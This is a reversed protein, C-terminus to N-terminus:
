QFGARRLAEIYLDLDAPDRQPIRAIWRAISFDPQQELAQQRYKRALDLHGAMAASAAMLRLAPDMNRMRSLQNLAQGWQRQFFAIGGLTWYYEDPPVPNLRMALEMKEEAAKPESYHVLTDAYDALVDAHHPSLEAARAMHEISLDLDRDFLAARGLERYATGDNPDIAVAREAHLRARDLLTRDAGARLVWEVVYSRALASEITAQEPDIDRALRLAKRGRRVRPLDFSRLHHRGNLYHAYATSDRATRERALEAAEVNDAVARALGNAFDWYVESAAAPAFAFKDAWVIERGAVRLLRMAISIGGSTHDPAVRSEVAYDIQHARVEDLASFPDFQWASYPAIVSVSRLRTLRITVDEVLAPALHRPMAGQAQEQLPPLLVVRPVFAPRYPTPAGQGAAAVTAPGSRAQPSFPALLAATEPPPEVRLDRRLRGRYSEFVARAALQNNDNLFAQIQTRVLVDSLPHQESLRTLAARGARGGIRSAAAIALTIFQDEIQTRTTRLWQGFEPGFDDLGDLLEGRYLGILRDLEGADAVTRLLGIEDLDIRIAPNLELTKNSSRFLEFGYKSGQTRTHLLLQRLNTQAQDLKSSEWIQSAVSTRGASGHHDRHLLAVVAYAKQRLDVGTGDPLRLTARGLLQLTISNSLIPPGNAREFQLM